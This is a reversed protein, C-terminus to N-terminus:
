ELLSSFIKETNLLNVFNSHLAAKALVFPDEAFTLNEAQFSVIESIRDVSFAIPLDLFKPRFVILKTKPSFVSPKRRCIKSLNLISVIEGRLNAIGYLWEPSNPLATVTLPQVVETVLPASVAFIEGDLSFVVFKENQSDSNSKNPSDTFDTLNLSSLDFNKGNISPTINM